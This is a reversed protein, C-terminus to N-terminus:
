CANAHYLKSLLIFYIERRIKLKAKVFESESIHELHYIINQTTVNM